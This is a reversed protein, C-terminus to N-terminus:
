YTWIVHSPHGTDENGGDVHVFNKGVGFRNFGLAMGTDLILYRLHSDAIVLDAALGILHASNPKGGVEKNHKECRWGSSVRIRKNLSEFLRDLKYIFDEDMDEKNCCPCVFNQKIARKMLDWKSM